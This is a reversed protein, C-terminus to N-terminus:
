WGPVKSCIEKLLSQLTQAPIPRSGKAKVVVSVYLPPLRRAYLTPILVSGKVLHRSCCPVSADKVPGAPSPLRESNSFRRTLSFPTPRNLYSTPLHM